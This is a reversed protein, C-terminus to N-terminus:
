AFLGRFRLYYEDPKRAARRVHFSIIHLGIGGGFVLALKFGNARGNRTQINTFKQGKMSLSCFAVADDARDGMIERIMTAPM